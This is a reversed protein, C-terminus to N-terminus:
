FFSKALRLESEWNIKPFRKKLQDMGYMNIATIKTAARVIKSPSYNMKSGLPVVVAHLSKSGTTHRGTYDSYVRGWPHDLHVVDTYDTEIEKFNSTCCIKYKKPNEDLQKQITTLEIM